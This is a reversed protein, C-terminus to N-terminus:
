SFKLMKKILLYGLVIVATLSVVSLFPWGSSEELDISFLKMLSFISLMTSLILMLLVAVGGISKWTMSKSRGFLTLAVVTVFFVAIVILSFLTEQNDVNIGSHSGAGVMAFMFFAVISLLIRYIKSLRLFTEM